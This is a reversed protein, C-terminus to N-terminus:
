DRPLVSRGNIEFSEVTYFILGSGSEEAYGTVAFDAGAIANELEMQPLRTDEITITLGHVIFTSDSSREEIVGSVVTNNQALGSPAAPVYAADYGALLTPSEAPEVYRLIAILLVISTGVLLLSFLAVLYGGIGGSQRRSQRPTSKPKAPAAKRSNVEPPITLPEDPAVTHKDAEEDPVPALPAVREQIRMEPRSVTDTPTPKQKIASEVAADLAKSFEAGTQYRDKPEKALAKEIVPKFLPSLDPRRTTPDPLEATMHSMAIEMASGDNYPVDGTLMEYLVVGLSYLDTQRGANASNVAQEPAIYHPSGFIEGITGESTMLVLGFDTLIATGDRSIMINSPKIDR